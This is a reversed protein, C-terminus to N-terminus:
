VDVLFCVIRHLRSTVLRKFDLSSLDFHTASCLPRLGLDSKSVTPLASTCGVVPRQLLCLYMLGNNMSKPDMHVILLEPLIILRTNSFNYKRKYNSSNIRPTDNLIEQNAYTYDFVRPRYQTHRAM